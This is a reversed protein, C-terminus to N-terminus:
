DGNTFVLEPNVFKNGIVRKINGAVESYTYYKDSSITKGYRTFVWGSYRYSWEVVCYGVGIVEVVFSDYIKEGIETKIGTYQLLIADDPFYIKLDGSNSFVETYHKNQKGWFHLNYVDFVKLKKRDYMKYDLIM